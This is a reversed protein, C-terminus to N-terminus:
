SLRGGDRRGARTVTVTPTTPTKPTRAERDFGGGEGIVTGTVIEYDYSVSPPVVILSNEIGGETAKDPNNPDQEWRVGGDIVYKYQYRGPPLPM